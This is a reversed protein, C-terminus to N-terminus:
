ISKQSRKKGDQKNLIAKCDAVGCNQGLQEHTIIGRIIPICHIVEDGGVSYMLCISTVPVPVPTGESLSSTDM